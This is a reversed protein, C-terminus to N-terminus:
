DAFGQLVIAIAGERCVNGDAGHSPARHEIVQDRVARFAREIAEVIFHDVNQPHADVLEEM